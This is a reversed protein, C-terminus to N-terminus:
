FSARPILPACRWWVIRRPLCLMRQACVFRSAVVCGPASCHEGCYCYHIGELIKSLFESADETNTMGPKRGRLRVGFNGNPRGDFLSFVRRELDAAPLDLISSKLERLIGVCCCHAEKDESSPPLEKQLPQLVFSAEHRCPRRM